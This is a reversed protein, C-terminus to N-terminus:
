LEFYSAALKKAESYTICGGTAGVHAVCVSAVVTGVSAATFCNEGQSIAALFGGVFSDGAGTTDVAKVKVGEARASTKQTFAKAGKSGETYIVLKVRDTFLQELAEEVTTKGTICELEEDSIKIVDALPIFEKVTEIMEAGDKWLAPRLNPDFSVIADKELAYQIARCHAEKMPFDGLSVSCFHLAYADEFWEAKVDEAEFLM